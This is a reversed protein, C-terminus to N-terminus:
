GGEQPLREAGRRPLPPAPELDCVMNLAIVFDVACKCKKLALSGLLFEGDEQSLKPNKKPNKKLQLACRGDSAFRLGRLSAILTVGHGPGTRKM